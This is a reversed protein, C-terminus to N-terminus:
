ENTKYTDFMLTANANRSSLNVSIKEIQGNGLYTKILEIPNPDNQVPFRLSQKKKRQISLATTAVGNMTVNYAPLDYKYYDPQLIAFALLGNQMTVDANTVPDTYTVFPLENGLGVKNLRMQVNGSLASFGITPWTLRFPIELTTEGNIDYEGVYYDVNATRWVVISVRGNGRFTVSMLCETGRYEDDAVINRYTITPLTVFSTDVPMISSINKQAALLAFGDKSCGGPNLLMYDVDSTFNAVNIEEINGINVNNSKVEIPNGSFVDTVEDMWGFQYRGPMTEKDYSYESTAFAWPKGNRTVVEATLDHSIAPNGTYRGGNKFWKVHEIKFKGNDIYWYAQFCDRLMDTLMKLTIPAKQAPQSYNGALINSKPTIFLEMTRGTIPNIQDYLFKSYEPTAAHSVGPAIEHLLLAIASQLPIADRLTYAKRASEEILPDYMSPAFWISNDGWHTRGIPFFVSPWGLIPPYSPMTYYIGPQKMGWETPNSTTGSWLYVADPFDYGIVRRYNRNNEVIDESPIPFTDRNYIKAVDCLIRAYVKIGQEEKTLTFHYVNELDDEDTIAECEQEWYMGSLFCSIVDEGPVYIQVLSRKRITVFDLRPKLKLLDYEKDMGALVNTYNDVPTPSVVITCDDTNITCDTKWFEGRWYLQWSQGRNWSIYVKLEFRTDFQTNNIFNYDDRVFTLKGSLKARYFRENQQIEYDMALDDKYLPYVAYNNTVGNNTTALEFKYTPNM